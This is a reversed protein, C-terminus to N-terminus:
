LIGRKALLETTHSYLRVDLQIHPEIAKSLADTMEVVPTESFWKSSTLNEDISNKHPFPQEASIGLATMLPPITAKIHELLAIGAMSEVHAFARSLALDPNTSTLSQFTVTPNFSEWSKQHLPGSFQRTMANNISPHEKLHPHLFFEVPELERALNILGMNRSQAIAAKPHTAKLFRYLSILRAQPERLVSVVRLKAQPILSLSPTDFHGSFFSSKSLSLASWNGLGNRREPFCDGINRTLLEHLSSGGCKPVHQFIVVERDCDIEDELAENQLNAALMRFQPQRMLHLRLAHVTKFRRHRAIMEEPVHRHGLISSIVTRITFDNIM